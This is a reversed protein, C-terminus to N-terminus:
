RDLISDFDRGWDTSVKAPASEPPHRVARLMARLSSAIEQPRLGALLAFQAAIRPVGSRLYMLVICAPAPGQPSGGSM